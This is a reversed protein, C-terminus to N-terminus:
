GADAEPDPAEARPERAPGRPRFTMGAQTLAGRTRQQERLAHLTGRVAGLTSELSGDTDPSENWPRTHRRDALRRVWRAVGAARARTALHEDFSDLLPVLADLESAVLKDADAIVDALHPDSLALLRAASLAIEEALVEARHQVQGLEAEVKAASPEPAKRGAVIAKRERETDAARAQELKQELEGAAAQEEAYRGCLRDHEALLDAPLREALEPPLPQVWRAPDRQRQYEYSRNSSEDFALEAEDPTTTDTM